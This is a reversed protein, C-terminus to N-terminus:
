GSDRLGTGYLCRIYHLHLTLQARASRTSITFTTNASSMREFCADMLTNFGHRHTIGQNKSFMRTARLTHTGNIHHHSASLFFLIHLRWLGAGSGFMGSCSADSRRGLICEREGALTKNQHQHARQWWSSWRRM